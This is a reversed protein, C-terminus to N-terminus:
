PPPIVAGTPVGSDFSENIIDLIEILQAVTITVGHLTGSMGQTENGGTLQIATAALVIVDRVTTGAAALEALKPNAPPTRLVAVGGDLDMIPDANLVWGLRIPPRFSSPILTNFYAALMQSELEDDVTQAPMLGGDPEPPGTPGVLYDGLANGTLGTNLVGNITSAQSPMQDHVFQEGQTTEGFDFEDFTEVGDPIPDVAPPAPCFKAIWTGWDSDLIVSTYAYENAVWFCGDDPDVVCASFDGWRERRGAPGSYFSDYFGASAKAVVPAQFSNLPDTGLHLAYSVNPCKTTSSQTFCLAIDGSANVNISPMYTWNDAGDGNIFGAQFVTPAAPPGGNTTLDQWVVETEGDGDPDATLCTYLHGNRYVANM